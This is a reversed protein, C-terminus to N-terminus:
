YYDHPSVPMQLEHNHKEMMHRAIKEYYESCPSVKLSATSQNDNHLRKFMAHVEAGEPKYDMISRVQDMGWATPHESYYEVINSYLVGWMGKNQRTSRRRTDKEVTLRIPTARPNKFYEALMEQIANIHNPHEIDFVERTRKEPEEPPSVGNVWKCLMDVVQGQWWEVPNYHEYGIQHQQAHQAQTLPVGSYEPKHAMGSGAGVSRVHAFVSRGDGNLYEKYDKTLVSPWQRVYSQFEKDTGKARARELLNPSTM